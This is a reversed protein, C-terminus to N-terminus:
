MRRYRLEDCDPKLYGAIILKQLETPMSSLRCVVENAKGDSRIDIDYDYSYSEEGIHPLLQVIDGKKLQRTTGDTFIVGDMQFDKLVKLNDYMGVLECGTSVFKEIGKSYVSHLDLLKKDLIQMDEKHMDRPEFRSSKCSDFIVLTDYGDTFDDSSLIDNYFADAEGPNNLDIHLITRSYLNTMLIVHGWLICGEYRPQGLKGDEGIHCVCARQVETVYDIGAM